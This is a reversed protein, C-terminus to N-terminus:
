AAAIRMRRYAALLSAGLDHEIKVVRPRVTRWSKKVSGEVAEELRHLRPKALVWGQMVSAEAAKELKLVRRRVADADRRWLSSLQVRATHAGERLQDPIVVRRAVLRGKLTKHAAM